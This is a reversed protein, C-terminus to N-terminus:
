SLLEIHEQLFIIVRKAKCSVCGGLENINEDVEDCHVGYGKKLRKILWKCVWIEITDTINIGM